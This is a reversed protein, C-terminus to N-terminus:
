TPPTNEQTVIRLFPTRNAYLIQRSPRASDYLLTLEAGERAREWLPEDVYTRTSYQQGNSLSYRYELQLRLRRGVDRRKRVVTARTAVGRSLLVKQPWISALWLSLSILAVQLAMIVNERVAGRPIWRTGFLLLLLVAAVAFVWAGSFRVRRPAPQLLEPEFDHTTM